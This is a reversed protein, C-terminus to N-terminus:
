FDVLERQISFINFNATVTSQTMPTVTAYQFSGGLWPKCLLLVCPCWVCWTSCSVISARCPAPFLSQTVGSKHFQLWRFLRDTITHLLYHCDLVPCTLCITICFFCLLNNNLAKLAKLTGTVTLTNHVIAFFAGNFVTVHIVYMFM